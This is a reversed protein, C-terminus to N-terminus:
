WLAVGTLGAVLAIVLLVYLLRRSRAASLPREVM